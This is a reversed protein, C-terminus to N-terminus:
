QRVAGTQGKRSAVLTQWIEELAVRDNLRDALVLKAATMERATPSRSLVSLFVHQIKQEPRIRSSALQALWTPGVSDDEAQVDIIQLPGMTPRVWTKRAMM